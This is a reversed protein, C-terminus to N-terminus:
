KKKQKLFPAVFYYILFISVVLAALISLIIPWPTTYRKHFNVGILIITVVFASIMIGMGFGLSLAYFIKLKQEM